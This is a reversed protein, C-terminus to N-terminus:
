TAGQPADDLLSEMAERWGSPGVAVTKILRGRPHIDFPPADPNKVVVAVDANELMARDNPGDGLAITTTPANWREEFMARTKELALGKDTRGLVHHFRGGRTLNFGLADLDDGFRALEADSGSWAIPESCLRRRAQAAARAGLGTREAVEADSMDYFGTFRYGKERRLAHLRDILSPYDPSFFHVRFRDVEQLDTREPFVGPPLCLAGGNEIIAPAPVPWEATIRAVEALTKSTCAILPVGLTGLRELAPLAAAPSYTEHDLLTGDLDTFVLLRAEGDRHHHADM